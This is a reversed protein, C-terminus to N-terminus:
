NVLVRAVDVLELQGKRPEIRGPVLVVREGRRIKWAHRLATVRAPWVAAPDFAETDVRRPIVVIREPDVAHRELMREALYGSPAIVRDGAALARGYPKGRWRAPSARHVYSNVLWTGTRSRAGAASRAAGEGRAHVLDVRETG